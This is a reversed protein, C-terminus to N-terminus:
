YNALFPQICTWQRWSSSNNSTSPENAANLLFLLYNLKSLVKQNKCVIMIYGSAMKNRCMLVSIRPPKFPWCKTKGSQKIPFLFLHLEKEFRIVNRGLLFSYM